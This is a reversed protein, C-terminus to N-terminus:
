VTATWFLRRAYHRRLHGARIRKVLSTTSFGDVFPIAISQGGWSRVVRTEELAEMDYDGRSM